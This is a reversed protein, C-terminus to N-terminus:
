YSATKGIALESQQQLTLDDSCSTQVWSNCYPDWRFVQGNLGFIEKLKKEVKAATHWSKIEIVGNYHEHRINGIRMKENILYRNDSADFRKHTQFYFAIKLMPFCDSFRDQVEEVTM